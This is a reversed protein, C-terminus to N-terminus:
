PRAMSAAMASKMLGQFDVAFDFRDARLKRWSRIWAGPHGREFIAVRDVYSTHELLPAWQAEILWTLESGPFSYKLSAVAPLTHIVDGMAGLRVVLIRPGSSNSTVDSSMNM